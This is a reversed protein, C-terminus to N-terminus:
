DVVTWEADSNVANTDSAEIPTDDVPRVFHYGALKGETSASLIERMGYFAEQDLAKRMTELPTVTSTKLRAKVGTELVVEQEEVEEGFILYRFLADSWGQLMMVGPHTAEAQMVADGNSLNWYCITPLGTLGMELAMRMLHTHSTAWSSDSRDMTDFHGDTFVVLTLNSLDVMGAKQCHTLLREIALKFNTNYCDRGTLREVQAIKEDPHTGDEFQCIHPKGSFTM